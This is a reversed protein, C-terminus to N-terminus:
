ASGGGVPRSMGTRPTPTPSLWIMAIFFAIVTFTIFGIAGLVLKQM